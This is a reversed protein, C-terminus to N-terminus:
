LSPITGALQLPARTRFHPSGTAHAYGAVYSCTCVRIRHSVPLPFLIRHPCSTSFPNELARSRGIGTACSAQEIASYPRCVSLRSIAADTKLADFDVHPCDQWLEPVAKPILNNRGFEGPVERSHSAFKEDWDKKYDALSRPPEDPPLNFSKPVFGRAAFAGFDELDDDECADGGEADSPLGEMAEGESEVEGVVPEGQVM